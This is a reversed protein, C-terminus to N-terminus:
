HGRGHGGGRDPNTDYMPDPGNLMQQVVGARDIHVHMMSDRVGGEKYRYSWVHLDRLSLYSVEAPTGFMLRIQKGTTQGVKVQAFKESTLVQEWSLLRGDGGFHAMYAYQSWPSSYELWQTKGDQYRATPQGSKALLEPESIGLKPPPANLTTCATLLLIVGLGLVCKLRKM